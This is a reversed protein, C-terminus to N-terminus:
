RHFNKIIPWKKLNEGFYKDSLGSYLFFIGILVLSITIIGFIVTSTPDSKESKLLWVIASLIFFIISTIIDSVDIREKVYAKNMRKRIKKQLKKHIEEHKKTLKGVNDKDLFEERYRRLIEFDDKLKTRHRGAKWNVLALSGTIVGLIIASIDKGELSSLFNYLSNM